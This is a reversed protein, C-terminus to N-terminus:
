AVVSELASRIEAEYDPLEQALDVAIRAAPSGRRRLLLVMYDILARAFEQEAEDGEDLEDRSLLQVPKRAPPRMCVSALRRSQAGQLRVLAQQLAERTPIGQIGPTDDNPL